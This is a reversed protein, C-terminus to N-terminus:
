PAATEKVSARLGAGTYSILRHITGEVDAPDCRGHSMREILHSGGATHMLSGLLFHLRWMLEVEDLEPLARQFAAPFRQRVEDFQAMVPALERAPESYIRGMLCMFPEGQSRNQRLRLAPGIFAELLSELEPPGDGAAAECEDLLRLREANLPQVRRGYVASVLGEKSGFHYHVAALNVGAEDTLARLSTRAIGHRAFLREAAEIIRDATDKTDSPTM